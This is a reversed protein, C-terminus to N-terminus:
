GLLWDVENVLFRARSPSSYSRANHGMGDYIVNDGNLWGMVEWHESLEHRVLPVSTPHVELGSYREDYCSVPVCGAWIPHGVTEPCPEFTAVSRKPHWSSGRIWQGGLLAPWEPWDPFANSATHLGLVRGGERIWAGFEAQAASWRADPALNVEPNGGLNVVVLDVHRLGTLAAPEDLQVDVGHGQAALIESVAASTEEFPHWPDAYRDHGTVVRIHAM